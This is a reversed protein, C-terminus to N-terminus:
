LTASPARFATYVLTSKSRQSLKHYFSDDHKQQQPLEELSLPQLILINEM